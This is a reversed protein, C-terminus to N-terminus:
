CSQGPWLGDATHKGTGLQKAVTGKGWSEYGAPDSPFACFCAAPWSTLQARHAQKWPHTKLDLWRAGNWADPLSRGTREPKNNENMESM